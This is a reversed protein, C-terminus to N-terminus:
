LPRQRMADMVVAALVEPSPYKSLFQVAGLKAARTADEQLPSTSIMVVHTALLAPQARVWKLLEFGGRKPMRVDLFIVVPASTEGALMIQQLYEEADEAEEFTVLPNTVGGRLLRQRLVFLDEPNDDVLVIPPLPSSSSM